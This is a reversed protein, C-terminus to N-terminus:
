GEFNSLERGSTFFQDGVAVKLLLNGAVNVSYILRKSSLTLELPELSSHGGCDTM